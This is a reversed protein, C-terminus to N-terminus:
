TSPSCGKAGMPVKELFAKITIHDGSGDQTVVADVRPSGTLFRRDYRKKVWLPMAITAATLPLNADADTLQGLDTLTLFLGTAHAVV